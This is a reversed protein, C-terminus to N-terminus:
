QSYMNEIGRYKIARHWVRRLRKALLFESEIEPKIFPERDKTSWIFHVPIDALSQPM